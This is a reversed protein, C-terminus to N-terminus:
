SKSTLEIQSYSIDNNDQELRDKTEKLIKNFDFFLFGIFYIITTATAGILISFWIGVVGKGFYIGFIYSLATQVIYYQVLAILSAIKQRGYGRYSGAMVAQTADVISYIALYVICKKGLNILAVEDTFLSFISNRFVLILIIIFSMISQAIIFCYVVIIRSEKIILKGVRDAILIAAAM